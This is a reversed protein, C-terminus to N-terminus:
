RLAGRRKFLFDKLVFPQLRMYAAGYVMRYLDKGCMSFSASPAEALEHFIDELPYGMWAVENEIKTLMRKFAKKRLMGSFSLLMEERKKSSIFEKNQGTPDGMSGQIKNSIVAQKEFVTLDVGLYDSIKLSTGEYDQIIDQYSVSLARQQNNKYSRVLEKTGYILDNEFSYLNWEGGGWTDIMSSAVELPNRWLFIYKADDGFCKFIEDIVFYNRPTKELFFAKGKGAREMVDLLHKKQILSFEEAGIEKNIFETNAVRSHASSFLSYINKDNTFSLYNLFYWTEPSTFVNSDLSIMRQLLTSGSRPLSFIFIPCIESM